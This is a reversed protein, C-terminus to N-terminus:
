CGCGAQRGVIERDAPTPPYIKSRAGITKPRQGIVEGTIIFDFDHDTMFNNEAGERGQLLSAAKKVMFVKCDLCPNMNAGYGHKPRTVEERLYERRVDVIEVPVKGADDPEMKLQITAELAQGGIHRHCEGRIKVPREITERYSVQPKHFKVNLNFERLLRPLGFFDRLGDLTRPVMPPLALEDRASHKLALVAQRVGVWRM